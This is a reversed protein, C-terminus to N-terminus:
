QGRAAKTKRMEAQAERLWMLSEDEEKRLERILQDREEKSYEDAASSSSLWKIEKRIQSNRAFQAELARGLDIEEEYKNLYAEIEAEDAGSSVMSRMTNLRSMYQESADYAEAKYVGGATPDYMFSSLFWWKNIPRDLRDPNILQDTAMTFMGAVSGFYSQLFNDVMIPSVNFQKGVMAALESTAGTTRDWPDKKKQYIGELERGTFMSHNTVAEIIPRVATPIPVTRGVYVEGMARLVSVTAEVADREESTGKRRFYDLLTEPITKFIVGLDDAVPIRLGNGLLFNANKLRPDARDYDDDGARSLAYLTSIAM